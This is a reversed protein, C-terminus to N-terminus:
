VNKAGVFGVWNTGDFCTFSIIDAKNATTTLTPATGGPWVVNGPWTVTRSGTADQKLYMTFSRGAVATPFTFTVNGTLTYFDITATAPSVVTKTGTVATDTSVNEQYGAANFLKGDSGAVVLNGPDSSIFQSINSTTTYLPTNTVDELEIEKTYGSGAGASDRLSFPSSQVVSFITFQGTSPAVFVPSLVTGEYGPYTSTSADFRSSMAEVIVQGSPSTQTNGAGPVYKLYINFINEQGSSMATLSGIKLKQRIKYSRGAVLNVTLGQYFVDSTGLTNGLSTTSQARAAIFAGSPFVSMDTPTVPASSVDIVEIQKQYTSSAADSLNISPSYVEMWVSYTGTTTPIFTVSSYDTFWQAGSQNYKGDIQSGILTGANTAPASGTSLAYRIYAGPSAQGSSNINLPAFGRVKYKRGAVLNANVYQYVYYTNAGISSLATSSIDSAVTYHGGPTPSSAPVYLKGDSGAQAQNGSQTSLDLEMRNDVDDYILSNIGTTGATQGAFAADQIQENTMTSSAVFLKGDTGATAQNNSDTSLALELRNDADDYMLSNIGTTGATQNAFASDQTAENSRVPVFLKGDTGAQAVNGSDSSLQLELRNDTDDYALTNIGDTAATQSAFAADQIQENTLAAPTPVHLYGDTGAVAMNGGDASLKLEVRNDTDDYVISNIGSGATQGAFASDQIQENTLPTQAPIHLYGDTGAVAVNGADASLKLELRGDPDDYVLTNIGTTNATNNAFAADQIQENTPTTAASYLAGDTGASLTNGADASLKLELRNESDDYVISNIGSGASQGEFALDQIYEATVDLPDGPDGKPGAEGQEGQPGVEGQIGQPGPAGEAVIKIWGTNTTVGDDNTPPVGVVSSGDTIYLSGEYQVADNLEYEYEDDWVGRVTIGSAGVPGQPGIEGQIGQIGQDGQDGKDGKEGQPGQIGQDGQPGPIGQIGQPGQEGQLGRPGSEITISTSNQSPVVVLSANPNTVVVLDVDAM